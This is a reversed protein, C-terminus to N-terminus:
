WDRACGGASALPGIASSFIRGPGQGVIQLNHSGAQAFALQLSPCPAGVGADAILVMGPAAAAAGGGDDQGVAARYSRRTNPHAWM